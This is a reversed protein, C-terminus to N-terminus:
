NESCIEDEIGRFTKELLNYDKEELIMMGDASLYCHSKDNVLEGCSNIFLLLIWLADKLKQCDNLAKAITSLDEEYNFEKSYEWDNICNDKFYTKIRELAEIEKNM